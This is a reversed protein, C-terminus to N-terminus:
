RYQTSGPHHFSCSYTYPTAFYNGDPAGDQDYRCVHYSNNDPISNDVGSWGTISSVVGYTFGGTNELQCGATELNPDPYCYAGNPGGQRGYIEDAPIYFITDPQHIGTTTTPLPPQTGHLQVHVTLAPHSATGWYKVAGWRYLGTFVVNAPPPIPVDLQTSFTVNFTGNGTPNSPTITSVTFQRQSGYVDEQPGLVIPDDYMPTPYLNVTTNNITVASMKLTQPVSSINKMYGTVTLLSGQNYPGSGSPLNAVVSIESSTPGILYGSAHSKAFPILSLAIAIVIAPLVGGTPGHIGKRKMYIGIIIILLLVLAIIIGKANGLSASVKSVSTSQIDFTKQDLVKGDKDTVSVSISPNYCLTDVNVAIEQKGKTISEVDATGCIQGASAMTAQANTAEDTGTWILSLNATDGKKYYDKDTSVNLITVSAGLITYRASVKNSDQGQSKLYFLVEYTQPNDVKPLTVAVSKKEGAGITIPSTSGGTQPVIDGYVSQYHTEFVPTATMSTKANNSVTCSLSVSDGLKIGIGGALTQDKTSVSSLKCTETLIQLGQSSSTITYEGASSLGLMLGKDNSSTVYVLYTGSLSSPATYVIDRNTISKENLTLVESYVKEDVLFPPKDKSASMLQVSYKVGSQIGVGNSLAFSINFINNEQKTVKVNQVNVDTVLVASTQAFTNTTVSFLLAFSICTLLIKKINM